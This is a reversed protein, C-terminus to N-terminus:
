HCGHYNSTLTVCGHGEAKRQKQVWSLPETEMERGWDRRLNDGRSEVEEFYNNRWPLYVEVDGSHVHLMYFYGYDM